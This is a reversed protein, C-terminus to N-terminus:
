ASSPMRSRDRCEQQVARGIKRTFITNGSLPVSGFRNDTQLGGGECITDAVYNDTASNSNGGYIGVGNALVPIQITNFQFINNSDAIGDSWMALADDGTNRLYTQEIISNTIGKHFNVGDAWTNKITLSTAHFGDNQGDIWIGCKTHEIWLNQAISSSYSGGLGQDAVNDDRVVTDGLMAFDYIEVSM